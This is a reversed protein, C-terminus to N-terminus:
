PSEATPEPPNETDGSFSDMATTIVHFNGQDIINELSDMTVGANNRIMLYAVYYLADYAQMEVNLDDASYTTRLIELVRKERESPKVGDASDRYLKAYKSRIFNELEGLEKLDLELLTYKKGKLEVEVKGREANGQTGMKRDGKLVSKNLLGVYFFSRAIAHVGVPLSTQFMGYLGPNSLEKKTGNM